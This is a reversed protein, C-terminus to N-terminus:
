AFISLIGKGAIARGAEIENVVSVVAKDTDSEFDDGAQQIGKQGQQNEAMQFFGQSQKQESQQQSVNVDVLNLQQANLMERLRPMAADIAEKVLAHQTTFAVSAQDQSVEVRISVPGLNRPNLNLEASPVAQKTMWVVKESFEKDWGPQAFYKTMDPIEVKSGNNNVARNLVALDAAMKSQIKDVGLDVSGKGDLIESEKQKKEADLLAAMETKQFSSNQEMMDNAKNNEPMAVAQELLGNTQVVSNNKKDVLLLARKVLGDSLKDAVGVDSNNVVKDSVLGAEMTLAQKVADNQVDYGAVLLNEEQNNDDFNKNKIVLNATKDAALRLQDGSLKMLSDAAKEEDSNVADINKLIDDLAQMTKELDIDVVGKAEPLGKGLVAAFEQLQSLNINQQGTLQLKDQRQQLLNIQGQLAAAFEETLGVGQFQLLSQQMNELGDIGSFKSFLGSAQINM